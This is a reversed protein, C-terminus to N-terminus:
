LRNMNLFVFRDYDAAAPEYLPNEDKQEIYPGDREKEAEHVESYLLNEEPFSPDNANAIVLNSYSLYALLRKYVNRLIAAYNTLGPMSLHGDSADVVLRHRFYEGLHRVFFNTGIMNSQAEFLIPLLLM